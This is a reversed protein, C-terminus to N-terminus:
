LRESSCVFLRTFPMLVYTTLQSANMLVARAVNPGLGRFLAGPGEYLIIKYVGDFSNVGSTDTM